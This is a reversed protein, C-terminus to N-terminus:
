LESTHIVRVKDREWSEWFPRMQIVYLEAREKTHFFQDNYWDWDRGQTNHQSAVCVGRQVVWEADMVATSSISMTHVLTNHLLPSCQLFGVDKLLHVSPLTCHDLKHGRM